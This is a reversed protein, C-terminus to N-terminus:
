VHVLLRMITKSPYDEGKTRLRGLLWAPLKLGQWWNGSEDYVIFDYKGLKTFQNITNWTGSRYKGRNVFAIIIESMRAIDGNRAFLEEKTIVEEIIPNGDDDFITLEGSGLYQM